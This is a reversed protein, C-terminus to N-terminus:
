GIKISSYKKKRQEFANKGGELIDCIQDQIGKKYLVNSSSSDAINNEIAGSRYEFSKRENDGINKNAIIIEEADAGLVLNANHTVIIIQREKKKVKIYEVLDHYISRNDLDDEPQDILIPCKVDTLGILLDLYVAAKKGPSMQNISDGDLRVDYQIHFWNTFFQLLVNEYQNGKRIFESSTKFDQEICDFAKKVNEANYEKNTWCFFDFGLINKIKDQTRKLFNLELFQNFSDKKFDYNIQIELSSGKGTDISRITNVYNEYENSFSTLSQLIDKKSLELEAIYEEKKLTRSKAIELKQNEEKIKKLVDNLSKNKESTQKLPLLDKLINEKQKEINQKKEALNQKIKQLRTEWDSNIKSEYEKIISSLEEKLSPCQSFDNEFNNTVAKFLGPILVKPSKIQDVFNIESQIDESLKKFHEFRDSLQNFQAWKEPPFDAGEALSDKKANLEKIVASFSSENGDKLLDDDIKKIARLNSFYSRIADNTKKHISSLNSDFVDHQRAIEPNQMLFEGIIQNRASFGEDDEVSHNLFTQPIYVIKRIESTGDMWTVVPTNVSLPDRKEQLSKIQNEVHEPDIAKAMNQLLLTKGTSKGGIICNLNPNFSIEEQQFQEDNFKVSKIVYHSDKQDPCETGIFVREGPEYIIQKLGEFTPDAKIWCYRKEDPEFLKELQHADSGHICPKLSGFTAIVEDPQIKGNTGLFHKVDNPNSTFLADVFEYVSERMKSTQQQIDASEDSDKGRRKGFGSIGDEGSNAVVILVHKRLDADKQFIEKLVKFDVLYQEAGLKYALNNDANKNISQGLRILESKTAAYTTIGDSFELKAFFRSEIQEDISPDFLFHINVPSRGSILSLRMEVNPIIMKVSKPLKKDRKVKKYNEISNYDTVGIVEISKNLDSGDGIYNEIAEYFKAWKLELVDESSLNKREGTADDIPIDYTFQDNKLTGPTHIHLDWRRWISGQNYNM